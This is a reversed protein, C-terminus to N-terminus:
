KKSKKESQAKCDKACNCANEYQTDCKGDGCAICVGAYGGYARGCANKDEVHELGVCCSNLFGQSGPPGGPAPNLQHGLESCVPIDESSSAAGVQFTILLAIIISFFNM